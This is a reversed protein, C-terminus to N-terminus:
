SCYCTNAGISRKRENAEFGFYNFLLGFSDAHCWFNSGSEDCVAMDLCQLKNNVFTSGSIDIDYPSTQEIDAIICMIEAKDAYLGVAFCLNKHNKAYIIPRKTYKTVMFGLSLIVALLLLVKLKM